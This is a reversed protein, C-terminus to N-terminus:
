KSVLSKNPENKPYQKTIIKHQKNNLKELFEKLLPIDKFAPKQEFRSNLDIGKCYPHRFHQLREADEPGIGGSLLFPTPGQYNDLIQWDFQQGSGGPLLTKTDFLFLPCFASYPVTAELDKAQAINFAKILSVSSLRSQRLVQQLNRCFEPTENGHLQIYTLGFTHVKELIYEQPANVFVGARDCSPLYDPTQAVYRQSPEWFIFGMINIDLHEAQRINQSERMGCVKIIPFSPKNM